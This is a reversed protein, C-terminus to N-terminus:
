KLIRVAAARKVAVGQEKEVQTEMEKLLDQVIRVQGAGM